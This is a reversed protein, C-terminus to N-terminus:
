YAFKIYKQTAIGKADVLIGVEWHLKDNTFHFGKFTLLMKVLHGDATKEVSIIEEKIRKANSTNDVEFEKITYKGQDFDWQRYPVTIGQINAAVWNLAINKADEPTIKLSEQSEKVIDVEKQAKEISEKNEAIGKELQDTKEELGAVRRGLAEIKETLVAFSSEMSISLDSLQQSMGVDNVYSNYALYGFVGACVVVLASLVYLYKRTSRGQSVIEEDSYYLNEDKTKHAPAGENGFLPIDEM